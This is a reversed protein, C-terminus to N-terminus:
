APEDAPKEEAPVPRVRNERRKATLILYLGAIIMPLSLWQGMHLGTMRAFEVLHADAERVFEVAFRSVGYVLLFAGVAFVVGAVAFLAWM